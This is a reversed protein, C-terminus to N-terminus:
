IYLSNPFRDMVNYPNWVGSLWQEQQRMTSNLLTFDAGCKSCNETRLFYTTTKTCMICRHTWQNDINTERVFNKDLM